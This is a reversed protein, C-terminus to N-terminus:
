CPFAPLLCRRKFSQEIGKWGDETLWRITVKDNVSMSAFLSKYNISRRCSVLPGVKSKLSSIVRALFLSLHRTVITVMKKTTGYFDCLASQLTQNLSHVSALLGMQKKYLFGM